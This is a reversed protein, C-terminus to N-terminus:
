NHTVKLVGDLLDNEYVKFLKYDIIKGEDALKDM